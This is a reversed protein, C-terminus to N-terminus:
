VPDGYGHRRFNRLDHRSGADLEEPTLAKYLSTKGVKIRGAIERISLGSVAPWKKARVLLM